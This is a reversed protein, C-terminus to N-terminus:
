NKKRVDSSPDSIEDEEHFAQKYNTHIYVYTEMIQPLEVERKKTKIM